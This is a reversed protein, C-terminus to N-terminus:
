QFPSFCVTCRLHALARYMLGSVFWSPSFPSYVGHQIFDVHQFIIRWHVQVPVVGARWLGTHKASGGPPPHGALAQLAAPPQRRQEGLSHARLMQPCTGPLERLQHRLLQPLLSHARLIDLRHERFDASEAIFISVLVLIARVRGLDDKVGRLIDPRHGVDDLFLQIAARGHFLDLRQLGLLELLRHLPRLNPRDGQVHGQKAPHDGGIGEPIHLGGHLHGM